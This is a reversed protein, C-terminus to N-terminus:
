ALRFVRILVQPLPHLGILTGVFVSKNLWDHPGVPATLEVTSFAYRPGGPPDHILVRNRVSVIVGDDTQMEYTADLRRVGDDRVLQRDAGGPLVIGRIGPGEFTGGLIPVMRREGSPSRGLAITPGIDVIAEYAFDAAPAAIPLHPALPPARRRTKSSGTM